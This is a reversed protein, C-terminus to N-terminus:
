KIGYATEFEQALATMWDVLDSYRTPMTETLTIVPVHGKKAAAVIMDTTSSTEQSNVVLAGVKGNELKKEFELLDVPSPESDNQLAREYGTPTVSKLGLDAALYYAVSETAAYTKGKLAKAATAIEADLANEHNLWAEYNATFDARHAPELKCLEEYYAKAEANRARASFWLHPNEGTQVGSEQAASIIVPDGTQAANLAWTDYGAGNLLVIRAEGLLAIDKPEPDFDHADVSNSAIITTVHVYKGGIQRAISSWQNVGVVVSLPQSSAVSSTSRRIAPQDASGCAALNIVLAVAGLIAALLAVFWQHGKRGSM